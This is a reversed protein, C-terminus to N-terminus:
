LGGNLKEGLNLWSTDNTTILIENANIFGYLIQYDSQTDKQIRVDRADIIIDNFAKKLSQNISPTKASFWPKLDNMITQEWTFMGGQGTPTDSVVLSLWPQERYVGFKIQNIAAIFSLPVDVDFATFFETPSLPAGTTKSILTVESLSTEENLQNTLASIIDEQTSVLVVAPTAAPTSKPIDSITRTTTIPTPTDTPKLILFVGGICGLVLVGAGVIYASRSVKIGTRSKNPTMASSNSTVPEAFIKQKSVPSIVTSPTPITPTPVPLAPNTVIATTLPITPTIKTRALPVVVRTSSSATSIKTPAVKPLTPIIPTIIKRPTIPEQSVRPALTIVEAQSTSSIVPTIIKQSVVAEVIPQPVQAPLTKEDAATDWVPAKTAAAVTSVTQIVPQNKTRATRLRALVEAHDATTMRGTQSTAKQIVGKRRDAEPLTYKPKNDGNLNKKQQSYWDSLNGIVAGTVSYRNHKTDTIVTANNVADAGDGVLVGHSPATLTSQATSRNTADIESTDVKTIALPSSKKILPKSFTHFPPIAADVTPAAKAGVKKILDTNTSIPVQPRPAVKKVSVVAPTAIVKPNADRVQAIDNAFTRVPSIKKVTLVPTSM